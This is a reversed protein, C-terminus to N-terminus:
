NIKFFINLFGFYNKGSMLLLRLLLLHQELSAIAIFQFGVSLPWLFFISPHIWTKVWCKLFWWNLLKYSPFFLALFACVHKFEVIEWHYGLWKKGFSLFNSFWRRCFSIAVFTASATQSYWTSLCRLFPPPSRLSPLHSSCLYLYRWHYVRGLLLLLFLLWSWPSQDLSLSGLSSPVESPVREQQGLTGTVWIGAAGKQQGKTLKPIGVAASNVKELFLWVGAIPELLRQDLKPGLGCSEGCVEIGFEEWHWGLQTFPNSGSAGQIARGHSERKDQRSCPSRALVSSGTGCLAALFNLLWLHPQSELRWHNHSRFDCFASYLVTYQFKRSIRSPVM